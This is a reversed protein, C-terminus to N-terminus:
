LCERTAEFIEYSRGSIASFMLIRGDHSLEPDTVFGIDIETVLTSTGFPVDVSAREARFIKMEVDIAERDSALFVERGDASLSADYEWGISDLDAIPGVVTFPSMKDPRTAVRLEGTVGWGATFYLTREDPTPNPAMAVMGALGTLPVASGFPADLRPRKAVYAQEFGDRASHFYLTLGDASLEAGSEDAPSSAADIRVPASFPSSLDPRSAIFLDGEGTGTRKSAFVVTLADASLTPSRDNEPANLEDVPIPPTFPGFVCDPPRGDLVGGDGDRGPLPEYWIRGCGSACLVICVVLPGLRPPM